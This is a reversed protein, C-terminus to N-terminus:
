NKVAFVAAGVGLDNGILLRVPAPDVSNIGSLDVEKGEVHFSGDENIRMSKIGEGQGRYKHGTADRPDIVFSGAPITEAFDGIVVTVDEGPLNLGDHSPGFVFQGSVKFKHGETVLKVEASEVLINGEAPTELTVVGVDGGGGSTWSSTGDVGETFTGEAIGPFVVNDIEVTLGAVDGVLTFKLEVDDLNGFKADTIPIQVATFDDIVPDPANIPLGVQDGNLSATLVGMTSGFRYSFNLNFPVAPTDVIQSLTATSGTTLAALNVEGYTQLQRFQARTFTEDNFITTNAGVFPVVQTWILDQFEPPGSINLDTASYAFEAIVQDNNALTKLRLVIFGGAALQADSIAVAGLPTVEGVELVGVFRFFQVFTEGTSGRRLVSLNLTDNGQSASTRDTFGIGYNGSPLDPRVLRFLGRIEIDHNSRLGSGSAPETNTAFRATHSRTARDVFVASGSSLTRTATVLHGVDSDMTTWGGGTDVCVTACNEGKLGLGFLGANPTGTGDPPFTAETDPPPDTDNFDDNLYVGLGGLLSRMVVFQHVEVPTKVFTRFRVDGIFPTWNTGDGSIYAIGGAYDDNTLAIPFPSGSHNPSFVVVAFEDGANLSIDLSRLNFSTFEESNPEISSNDFTKSGLITSNPEGSTVERIQVTVDGFTAGDFKRIAFDVSDLIGSRGVTVVQASFDSGIATGVIEPGLNSQDIQNAASALKIFVPQTFVFAITLAASVFFRIM